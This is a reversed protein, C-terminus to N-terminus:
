LESTCHPCKTAQAHVEMFCYPCHRAEPIEHQKEEEQKRRLRNIQKIVIFIVLAVILFNLVANLFMGIRIVPAGAAEADALTAFTKDSLNIFISSFDIRGTLLGIPPLVVDKVLSDVIKTFAAGVIVGVALDVVNGRTIFEQFEKVFGKTNKVQSYWVERTNIEPKRIMELYVYGRPTYQM